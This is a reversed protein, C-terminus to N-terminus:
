IELIHMNLLQHVIIVNNLCVFNTSIFKFVIQVATQDKVNM